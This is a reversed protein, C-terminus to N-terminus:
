SAARAVEVQGAGVQLDLDLTGARTGGSVPPLTVQTHKGPEVDVDKANDGPLRIDGLGVDISLRVTAEPPGVVLLRGVGM